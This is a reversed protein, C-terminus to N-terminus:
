FNFKIGEKEFILMLEEMLKVFVVESEVFWSKDGSFESNMLDVELEFIIEIICKWNRVVM